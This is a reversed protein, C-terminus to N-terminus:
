VHWTSYYFYSTKMRCEVLDGSRMQGLGDSRDLIGDEQSGGNEARVAEVAVFACARDGGLSHQVSCRFPPRQDGSTGRCHGRCTPELSDCRLLDPTVLGCTGWFTVSSSDGALKKSDKGRSGTHLWAVPTSTPSSRQCAGGFISTQPTYGCYRFTAWFLQPAFTHM